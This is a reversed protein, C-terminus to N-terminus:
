TQMIYSDTGHQLVRGCSHINAKSILDDVTEEYQSWWNAQQACKKCSEQEAHVRTCSPPPPIPLTETPDHYGPMKAKASFNELIQDQTGTLYEGVQCSEVWSVLSLQFDSNPDLIHNRMEQPTLNGQLWVVM